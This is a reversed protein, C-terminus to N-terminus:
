YKSTVPYTKTNVREWTRVSELAEAASPKQLCKSLLLFRDHHDDEGKAVINEVRM